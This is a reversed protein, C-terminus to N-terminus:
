FLMFENRNEAYQLDIHPHRKYLKSRMHHGADFLLLFAKNLHFRDAVPAGRSNTQNYIMCAAPIGEICFLECNEDNRIDEGFYKDIIRYKMHTDLEEWNCRCDCNM